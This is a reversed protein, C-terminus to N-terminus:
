VQMEKIFITNHKKNKEPQIFIQKVKTFKYTAM